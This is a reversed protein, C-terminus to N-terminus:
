ASPLFDPAVSASLTAPQPLLIDDKLKWALTVFLTVQRLTLNSLESHSDSLQQLEHITIDISM